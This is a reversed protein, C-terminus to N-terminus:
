VLIIYLVLKPMNVFTTSFTQTSIYLIIGNIGHQNRARVVLRVSFIPTFLTKTCGGVFYTQLFILYVKLFYLVINFNANTRLYCIYFDIQMVM